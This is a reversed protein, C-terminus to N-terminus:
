VYTPPRDELHIRSRGLILWSDSDASGPVRCLDASSEENPPYRRCEHVSQEHGEPPEQEAEDQGAEANRHGDGALALDPKDFGVDIQTGDSMNIGAKAQFLRVPKGLPKDLTVEVDNLTFDKYLKIKDIKAM